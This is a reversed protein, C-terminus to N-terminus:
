SHVVTGAIKQIKRVFVSVDECGLDFWTRSALAGHIMYTLARVRPGSSAIGYLTRSDGPRTLADRLRRARSPADPTDRPSGGRKIAQVRTGLGSGQNIRLASGSLARPPRADGGALGRTVLQLNTTAIFFAIIEFRLRGAPARQPQRKPQRTVVHCHRIVCQEPTQSLSQGRCEGNVIKLATACDCAPLLNGVKGDALYGLPTVRFM